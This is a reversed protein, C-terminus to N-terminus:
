VLLQAQLDRDDLRFLPQGEKVSDWVKVDVKAVLAAEPVGISVNDSMAEVIGSAAVSVEYPKPSPDIPPPAIPSQVNLRAAMVATAMTGAIALYFTPKKLLM